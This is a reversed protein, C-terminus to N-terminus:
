NLVTRVVRFGTSNSALNPTLKSRNASRCYVASFSFAGGRNVRFEGTSAGIPDIMAPEKYPGYWDWCWEAVNGHMDRLGFDNEEKSLDGVPRSNAQSNGLYWGARDLSADLPLSDPHSIAGTYFAEPSGARCAYEWESETPLRYGNADFDCDPVVEGTRYIEGEITYCPRLRAQESKANLWKVADFWSMLSAPHNSPNPPEGIGPGGSAGVSIDAYGNELGWNRVSTWEAFSVETQSMLFNRTLTTQHRTEDSPDIPETSMRVVTRESEPSGMGFSGRAIYSFGQPVSPLEDPEGDVIRVRVKVWPFLESPLESSADWIIKNDFGQSVRSGVDGTVFISEKWYEGNTTYELTVNASISNVNGYDYVVLVKGEGEIQMAEVQAIELTGYVNSLYMFVFGLLLCIQGIQKM